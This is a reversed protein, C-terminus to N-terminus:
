MEARALVCHALMEPIQIGVSNTRMLAVNKKKEVKAFPDVKMKKVCM